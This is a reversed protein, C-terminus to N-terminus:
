KKRSVQVYMKHVFYEIGSMDIKYAGGIANANHYSLIEYKNESKPLLFCNNGVNNRLNTNYQTFNGNGRYISYPSDSLILYNLTKCIPQGEKLIAYDIKRNPDKAELDAKTISGEFKKNKLIFVMKGLIPLVHKVSLDADKAIDFSTRKEEFTRWGHTNAPIKTYIVRGSFDIIGNKNIARISNLPMKLTNTYQGMSKFNIMNIYQEGNINELELWFNTYKYNKLFKMMEVKSIKNKTADIVKIDKATMEDIPVHLDKKTQKDLAKKYSFYKKLVATAKKSLKSRVDNSANWCSNYSYNLNFQACIDDPSKKNWGKYEGYELISMKSYKEKESIYQKIKEISPCHGKKAYFSNYNKDNSIRLSKCQGNDGIESYIKNYATLDLNQSQKNTVKKKKVTKVEKQSELYQYNVTACMSSDAETFHFVGDGKQTKCVYTEINKSDTPQKLCEGGMSKGMAQILQHKTKIKLTSIDRCYVDGKKKIDLSGITIYTNASLSGIALILTLGIKM